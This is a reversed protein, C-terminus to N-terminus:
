CHRQFMIYNDNVKKIDKIIIDIGCLLNKIRSVINYINRHSKVFSVM